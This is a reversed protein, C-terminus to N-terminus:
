GQHKGAFIISVPMGGATTKLVWDEGDQAVGSGGDSKWISLCLPHPTGSAKRSLDMLPEYAINANPDKDDAIRSLILFDRQPAVGQHDGNIPFVSYRMTYVGPKITQGRRDPFNAPFRVIGVSAGHPIALTAGDEPAAAKPVATRFWMEAVAGAPGSIKIGEKQLVPAFAGSEDPVSAAAETKYQAMAAGTMLLLSFLATRIM